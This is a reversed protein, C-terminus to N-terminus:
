KSLLQMVENSDIKIGSIKIVKEDERPPELHSAIKSFQEASMKFEYGNRVVNAHVAREKAVDTPTTLWVLKSEAGHKAAIGRLLERDDFRNFNTDFVVSKGQSLLQATTQNLKDYLQRSEAEDHTPQDFLKHRELDAWIHVAGTHKAILQAVTTKGAGPYGLFLYLVPKGM